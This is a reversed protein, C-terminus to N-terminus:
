LVSQVSKKQESIQIYKYDSNNSPVISNTGNILKHINIEKLKISIYISWLVSSTLNNYTGFRTENITGM